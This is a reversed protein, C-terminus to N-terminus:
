GDSASRASGAGDRLSVIGGVTGLYATGDPGIALGAYNNNFPLGAGAYREFATRGDRMRIATWSWRQVGAADVDRTYAYILGTRSSLKPVVSPAAETRREWVKRCGRGDARVDVRAFGPRSPEATRPGFPDRYGWNNEIVLSRGATVLSNETASGGKAFVPVECVLRREGRALRTARRYVVVNLPDDNDAIAVLGGSMLTPTTGSGANVMSPKRTGDNRYRVSWDVRPRGQAGVSMRYMRKDSVVYAADRDIAFSNQIEEGTRLVGIRGTTRDVIGVKGNKKSVFWLDGDFAPLASSIREDQALVSSLDVEDVKRLSRGDAGAALVFVRRTKTPVWMRDRQDLFFYGGGTFNQYIETGPPDPANPLDYTALTELTRPDIIRAQPPAVASPCVTVLRGRRDFTISGCLSPPKASTELVSDRGLPGAWAYADTMWTDNHINSRPDRAMFPNQPGKTFAFAQATVPGGSSPGPAADSPASVIPEASAAGASSALVAVALYLVARRPGMGAVTRTKSSGRLGEQRRALM